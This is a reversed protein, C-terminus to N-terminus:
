CGSGVRMQNFSAYIQQLDLLAETVVRDQGRRLVGVQGLTGALASDLPDIRQHGGKLDGPSRDSSGSPM